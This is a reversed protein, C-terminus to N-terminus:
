QGLWERMIKNVEGPADMQVFHNADPIRKVQIKPADREVADPIVSSLAKDQCGWILLVPMTYELNYAVNPDVSARFFARYYNLPPSLAGPQSFVYKYPAISDEKTTVSEGSVNVKKQSQFLSDFASFDDLKLMLEPLYPLQFFFMYWSMKWQAKNTQLINQFTPLPPANMIILKDVCDPYYRGFTWAVAGGWDHAVLVCSKYGLAHIVQQLDSSLKKVTYNELGPPKSSENYGRQDIAVVRYDKQFERIQNRWSYWFEPFGHVFLMLPKDEPGSAVYHIRVDKLTLFGHTGLSPDYLSSPREWRKWYFVQRFGKTFCQKVIFLLVMIGYPIATAWLKISDVFGPM